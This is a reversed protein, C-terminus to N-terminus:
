KKGLWLLDNKLITKLESYENVREPMKYRDVETLLNYRNSSIAPMGYSMLLKEFQNYKGLFEKNFVDWRANEYAELVDVRGDKREYTPINYFEAMEKTRSDYVHVIAPIELLTCLINGHIRQGFSFNLNLSKLYNALCPLDYICVIRGDALMEIGLRSCQSMYKRIEKVSLKPNKEDYLLLVYEGQDVFWTNPYKKYIGSQRYIQMSSMDGNIALRLNTEDIVNKNIHLDRGMQYMSPCGTIVDETYGLRKFVEGTFYGRLGFMGGTAHIADIFSTAIPKIASVLDDIDDYSEAQAGAGLALVPVHYEKLRETYAELYGMIEKSASFCNALPWLILDFNENIYEPTMDRTLYEYEVGDTHCYVDMATLFLKNGLNGGWKKKLDPLKKYDVPELNRDLEERNSHILVRM